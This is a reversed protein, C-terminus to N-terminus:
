LLCVILNETPLSERLSSWRVSFGVFCSRSLCCCENLVVVHITPLEQLLNKILNEQLSMFPKSRGNFEKFGAIKDRVSGVVCDCFHQSVLYWHCLQVNVNSWSEIAVM